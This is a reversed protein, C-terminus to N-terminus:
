GMKTFVFIGINAILFGTELNESILSTLLTAPPFVNWLKGIYEEISHLGQVLILVLFGLKFKRDMQESILEWLNQCGKKVM